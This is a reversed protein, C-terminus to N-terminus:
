LLIESDGEMDGELTFRGENKEPGEDTFKM